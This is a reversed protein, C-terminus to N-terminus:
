RNKNIWEEIAEDVALGINGKKMGFKKFVTKRFKEELDNNLIITM